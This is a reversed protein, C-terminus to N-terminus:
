SMGFALLRNQHVALRVSDPYASIPNLDTWQGPDGIARPPTLMEVSDCWEGSVVLIREAFLAIEHECRAHHM